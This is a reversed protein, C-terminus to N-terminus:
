IGLKIKYRECKSLLYSVFSSCAVLFYLSDEVFLDSVDLMAHRIGDSDSTYGYMALFARKLAGHIPVKSEVVELAKGLEAKPDCAILQCIGEVASVSEKISNRHDPSRRDSLLDLATNLHKHIGSYKTTMQLANEISATQQVDTIPAVMRGILRYASLERELVQNIKADFEDDTFHQATFEILDYVDYWNGQLILERMHNYLREHDGFPCTDIPEKLLYHWLAHFYPRVWEEHLTTTEIGYTRFHFGRKFIYFSFHDWLGNRLAQDISDLQISSRPFRKGQRESFRM